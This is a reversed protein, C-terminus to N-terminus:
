QNTYSAVTLTHEIATAKELKKLNPDKPRESGDKNALAYTVRYTYIGPPAIVKGTYASLARLTEENLIENAGNEISVNKIGREDDVTVNVLVSGTIDNKIANEPYKLTKTIAKGMDQFSFTITGGPYKPFTQELADPALITIAEPKVPIVTAEPLPPPSPTAPMKAQAPAKPPNAIIVPPSFKTPKAKTNKSVPKIAPPSYKALPPKPVKQPVTDIVVPLSLALNEPRNAGIEIWGYNKSFALTSACLLGACLPVAMLYNLRALKGSRTQYLKMIRSKLLQQNSFHNAFPVQSSSYAQAILFDVYDDQHQNTGAAHQDAEFEHLAKLSNQLLYVVPNFWNIIKLFETFVIDWSHKQRIHVLEHKLVTQPLDNFSSVFLYGFFSFPTSTQKVCVLTYNDQKLHKNNLILKLLSYLKIIFLGLVYAFL